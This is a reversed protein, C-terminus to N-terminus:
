VKIFRLDLIESNISMQTALRPFGGYKKSTKDHNLGWRMSLCQVVFTLYAVYVCLSQRAM